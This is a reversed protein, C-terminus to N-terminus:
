SHQKEVVRRIEDVPIGLQKSVVEFTIGPQSERVGNVFEILYKEYDISNKSSWYREFNHNLINALVESYIKVGRRTPKSEGIELPFGMVVMRGDGITYRLDYILLNEHYHVKVGISNYRYGMYLKDYSKPMVLRVRVGDGVRNKILDLLNELMVRDKESPRSGTVTGTIWGNAERYIDFVADFYEKRTFLELAISMKELLKIRGRYEERGILILYITGFLLATEVILLIDITLYESFLMTM